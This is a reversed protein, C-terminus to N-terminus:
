AAGQLQKFEQIWKTIHAKELRRAEVVSLPDAPNASRLDLHHAGEPIIVSVVSESVNWLVGGTSWPDLLGNSFVINSAAKFSWGGYMLPVMYTRPTVGWTKQCNATYAQFDWPAPEFFDKVGDYCFPMVMETCSQFDWGQDDLRVDAQQGADLCKSEGTYNFYVTLGAFLEELLAKGDHSSDTLHSCVVKVPYAPLPALFNAPYPYDVMALNTWVDMLYAKLTDVDATSKLPKCLKWTKSLWALGEDNATISNIAGWSKRIVEACSASANAFDETVKQGFKDCPTFDTFQRVPASAAIAGQVIHPYKIRFWAALMGGYSGGFVIVPSTQAGEIVFRLYSLLAVYDELAQESTLYGSYKPVTLSRNGYPESIGYYRHEGFVIMAKFEPAIDWMFGTNEAFLTIDGENGAYFFIPGGNKDWHEDNILFRQLFTDDNAFSFHDVRQTMFYTKYKYAYCPVLVLVLMLCWFAGLLMRGAM